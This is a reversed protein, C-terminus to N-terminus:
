RPNRDLYGRPTYLWQRDADLCRTTHSGVLVISLMDIEVEGLESLALIRREEGDRGINRGIFVPTQPPRHRLLIAAAEALRAPRRPSRPNYLAVVFDAAAAAELRPRIVEWPTMLDSLSIACFDHGLPAGARAAAAQVASIGPCMLLEVSQWAPKPARDLLEFVLAALGYIGADGSSVLAVLRGEAALDLALRVRAEEDGLDSAHRTKGDIARGLLDLYLRYGVIESAEALAASAEPTRWGPDGPGIGVVALKGRRRGIASADIPEPARAVACTARRSKRKPVVLTGCPGAAALAAGEAVGWCGTARFTAASRGTLRPTETLLRTASFFRAPVGFSAALEHIAPEALKLEISVVAAVAEVALGAEALSVRALEAVEAGSCGRECGIGLALVPPHFTLAESAADVTRDTVVVRHEAREAWRITGGQLWEVSGAETVLAVPEGRLLAAAIPKVQAPNAIRWGPPPEDLAIGLRLDGATTIAAVGGTLTAVARALSNAGRHGGILPVAVSGDEAVAVLAPEQHKSALLPAVSRILIGGACIGIIPQGAAFLRAIEASARDSFVQDWDAGMARPGHLRSGPLADRLRRALAVGSAGLVVIAIDEPLREGM